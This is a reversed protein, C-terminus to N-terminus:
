LLAVYNTRFEDSYRLQTYMYRLLPLFFPLLISNVLFGNNVFLVNTKNSNILTVM